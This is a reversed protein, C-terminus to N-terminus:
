NKPGYKKPGFGANLGFQLAMTAPRKGHNSIENRLKSSSSQRNKSHLLYFGRLNSTTEGNKFTKYAKFLDM